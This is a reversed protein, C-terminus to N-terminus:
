RRIIAMGYAPLSLRLSANYTEIDGNYYHGSAPRSPLIRANLVDQYAGGGDCVPLDVATENSSNNVVVYIREDQYHRMFGFVAHPSDCLITRYTGLRLAAYRKHLGILKKYWSLLERDQSAEDWIMARRCDPDWSGTVGVEDGYYVVPAGIFCMQFGVALRLRRKDGTCEHLFRPSDHSDLLNYMVANVDDSYKSLMINLRNDFEASTIHKEAIYDRVAFRFLYNMACDVQCFDGIMPSADCWTEAMIIRDPWRKKLGARMYQWTGSEVEDAVDLRWGDIDAMEIWYSMVSLIFKRVDPDATRLKPMHDYVEFCRYNLPDKSLPLESYIFWNKYESDKGKEWLDAFQMFECGVHNFVGDLVVRIKRGHAQRVLEILDENTGFDPDVQFYDITAYKHNFNGKFVPNLYIVEIGLEALYDLKQIIGKLDGGFYNDLMPSSNWPVYAHNKKEPDGINFREPFIQYWVAGRAWEPVSFSDEPTSFIFDFFGSRPATESVGHDTYYYATGNTDTLFFFYSLSHLEEPFTLKVRWDDHLADRYAVSMSVHQMKEPYTMCRKWYYVECSRVDSRASLLRLELAEASSLYAFSRTMRHFVAANNM